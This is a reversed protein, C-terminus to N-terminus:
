LPKWKLEKAWRKFCDKECHMPAMPPAQLFEQLRKVAHERCLDITDYNTEISGAADADRTFNYRVEEAPKGCADCLVKKEVM